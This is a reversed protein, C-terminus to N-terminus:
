FKVNFTLNVRSLTELETGYEGVGGTPAFILTSHNAYKKQYYTYNLRVFTFDNIPQTYYVEYTDGRVALKNADDSTGATMSTWNESGWNYEFGIRPNNYEPLDFKYRGGLWYAYGKKNGTEGTVAGLLGSGWKNEGSPEANSYAVHAFLSVGSNYLNPFEIFAYALSLDGTSEGMENMINWAKIYAVNFNSDTNEGLNTSFFVGAVNTDEITDYMAGDFYNNNQIYKAYAFRLSADPLDLPKSLGIHLQAGDAAGDFVLSSNMSKLKSNEKFQYSAGETSPLRGILLEVPVDGKIVNWTVYARELFLASTNPLIGEKVDDQNINYNVAGTGWHKTMSIRGFFKMDDTIDSKMNLRVRSFGVTDNTSKTGDTYKARFSSLEQRFTVGFQLKDSLAVSEVDDIREEMDILDDNTSSLTNLIEDNIAGNTSLEEKVISLEMKLNAIEEKMIQIDINDEAYVSSFMLSSVLLSLAIRKKMIKM